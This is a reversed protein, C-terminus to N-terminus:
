KGDQEKGKDFRFKDQRAMERIALRFGYVAASVHQHTCPITEEVTKGVSKGPTDALDIPREEREGEFPSVQRKGRSKGRQHQRGTENVPANYLRNKEGRQIGVVDYGLERHRLFCGGTHGGRCDLGDFRRNESQSGVQFVLEPLRDVRMDQGADALLRRCVGTRTRRPKCRGPRKESLDIQFQNGSFASRNRALFDAVPQTFAQRRNGPATSNTMSVSNICPMPLAMSM